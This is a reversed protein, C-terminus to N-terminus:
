YCITLSMLLTPKSQISMLLLTPKSNKVFRLFKNIKSKDKIISLIKNM